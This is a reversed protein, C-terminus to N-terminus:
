AIITTQVQVQLPGKQEGINIEKRTNCGLTWILQVSAM